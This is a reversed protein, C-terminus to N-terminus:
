SLRNILELYLSDDSNLEHICNNCYDLFSLEDMFSDCMEGEKYFDLVKYLCKDCSRKNYCDFCMKSIVDLLSNFKRAIDDFDINVSDDTVHGLEYIQSIRECPLVKGSATVFMKKAFPLCTSTQFVAYNNQLQLFSNYTDYYDGTCRKLFHILREKDNKGNFGLDGIYSKYLKDYFMNKCKRKLNDQSLETITTTKHFERSFYENITNVSNGSHLVTNFEVKNLFYDSYVDQIYKINNYIKDYCSKGEFNVRFGNGDSNGDLSVLLLVNKDVLYDIYKDLLVANTTMSYKVNRYKKLKSTSYEIIEKILDFNLLPEGGYFSIYFDIDPNCIRENKWFYFLYDIINKAKDFSMNFRNSDFGDYYDGYCCYVCKLNCLGTVEFTLQKLNEISRKVDFKSIRYFYSM